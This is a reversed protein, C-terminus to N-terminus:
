QLAVAQSASPVAPTCTTGSASHSDLAGLGMAICAAAPAGKRGMLWSRCTGESSCRQVDWSRAPLGVRRCIAGGITPKHHQMSAWASSMCVAETGHWAKTVIHLLAIQRPIYTLAWILGEARSQLTSIGWQGHLLQSFHHLAHLAHACRSWASQSQLGKEWMKLKQRWERSDICSQAALCGWMTLGTVPEADQGPIYECSEAHGDAVKWPPWADAHGQVWAHPSM